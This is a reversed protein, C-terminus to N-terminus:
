KLLLNEYVKVKDVNENAVSLSFAEGNLYVTKQFVDGNLLRFEKRSLSKVNKSKFLAEKKTWANIIFEIKEEESINCYKAYEEDSLIETECTKGSVEIIEPIKDRVLKNYIIKEAM